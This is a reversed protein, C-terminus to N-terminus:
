HFMCHLTAIVNCIWAIKLRRFLAKSHSKAISKTKQPKPETKEREREEEEENFEDITGKRGNRQEADRRKKWKSFQWDCFTYLCALAYSVSTHMCAWVHIVARVSLVRKSSMIIYLSSFLCHVFLSAFNKTWKEEEKSCIICPQTQHLRLKVFAFFM